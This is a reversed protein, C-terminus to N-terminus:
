DPGENSRMYTSSNYQPHVKLIEEGGETTCSNLANESGQALGFRHRIQQATNACVHSGTVHPRLRASFRVCYLKPLRM